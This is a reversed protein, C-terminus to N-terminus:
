NNFDKNLFQYRIRNMNILKVQSDIFIKIQSEYIDYERLVEIANEKTTLNVDADNIRNKIFVTVSAVNGTLLLAKFEPNLDILGDLHNFVITCNQKGLFQLILGARWKPREYGAGDLATFVTPLAYINNNNQELWFGWNGRKGNQIANRMIFSLTKPAVEKCLKYRFENIKDLKELRTIFADSKGSFGRERWLIYSDEIDDWIRKYDRSQRITASFLGKRIATICAGIIAIISAILGILEIMEIGIM